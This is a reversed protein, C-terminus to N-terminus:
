DSLCAPLCCFDTAHAPHQSVHSTHSAPPEHSLASPPPPLLSPMSLISSSTALADTGHSTCRIPPRLYIAATPPQVCAAHRLHMCALLVAVGACWCVIVWYM